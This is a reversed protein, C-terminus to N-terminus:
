KQLTSSISKHACVHFCKSVIPCNKELVVPFAQFCKYTGPAWLNLLISFHNLILMQLAYFIHLLESIHASARFKWPSRGHGGNGWMKIEQEGIDFCLSLFCHLPALPSIM